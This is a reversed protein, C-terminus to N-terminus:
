EFIHSVPWLNLAAKIFLLTGAFEPNLSTRKKIITDQQSSQKQHTTVSISFIDESDMEDESAIPDDQSETGLINELEYNSALEEYETRAESIAQQQEHNKFIEYLRLLIVLETIEDWDDSSLEKDEYSRLSINENTEVLLSKYKDWDEIKMQATLLFQKQKPSGSFHLVIDKYKKILNIIEPCNKLANNIALQLTHGFCFIKSINYKQELRKVCLKINSGNDVISCVTKNKLHLSDLINIIKNLLCEATHPYPLRLINIDTTFSIYCIETDDLAYEHINQLIKDKANILNENLRDISLINADDKSVVKICGGEVMARSIHHKNRLHRWLNSTSGDKQYKVKPACSKHHCVWVEVDDIEDVSYFLRVASGRINSSESTRSIDDHTLMMDDSY